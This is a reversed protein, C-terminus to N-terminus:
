LTVKEIQYLADYANNVKAQLSNDTATSKDFGALILAIRNAYFELNMVVNRAFVLRAQESSMSENAVKQMIAVQIRNVIDAVQAQQYDDKYPM